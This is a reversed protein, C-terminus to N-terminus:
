SAGLEMRRHPAAGIDKQHPSTAVGWGITDLGIARGSVTTTTLTGAREM